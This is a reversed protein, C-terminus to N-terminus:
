TLAASEEPTPAVVTRNELKLRLLRAQLSEILQELQTTAELGLSGTLRGGSGDMLLARPDGLHSGAAYARQSVATALAASDQVRWSSLGGGVHTVGVLVLGAPTRTFALDTMNRTFVGNSPGFLTGVHRLEAM